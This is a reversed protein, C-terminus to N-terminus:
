SYLFIDYIIFKLININMIRVNLLTSGIGLFIPRINLIVNQIDITHIIDLKVINIILNIFYIFHFFTHSICSHRPAAQPIILYNCFRYYDM